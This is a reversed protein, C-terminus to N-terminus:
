DVATHTHTHTHTNTNHPATAPPTATGYRNEWVSLSMTAHHVALGARRAGRGERGMCVCGWAGVDGEAGCM